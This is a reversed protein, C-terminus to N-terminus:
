PRAHTIRSFLAFSKLTLRRIPRSEMSHSVMDSICFLIGNMASVSEMNCTGSLFHKNPHVSVYVFWM